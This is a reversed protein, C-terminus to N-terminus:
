IDEQAEEVSDRFFREDGLNDCHEFSAHDTDDEECDDSDEARDHHPM